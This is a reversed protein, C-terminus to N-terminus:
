GRGRIAESCAFPGEQLQNTFFTNRKVAVIWLHAEVLVPALATRVFRRLRESVGALSDFAGSEHDLPV